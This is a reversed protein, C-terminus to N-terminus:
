GFAQEIARKEEATLQYTSTGNQVPKAYVRNIERGYLSSIVVGNKRDDLLALSFSQDGGADSFPNFRVLGTHRITQPMAHELIDVRSRLSARETDTEGQHARITRLVEEMNAGDRRFFVKWKHRMLGLWILAWLALVLVFLLGYPIIYYILYKLPVVVDFFGEM